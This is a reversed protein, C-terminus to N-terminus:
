YNNNAEIFDWEPIVDYFGLVTEEIEIFLSDELRQLTGVTRSKM